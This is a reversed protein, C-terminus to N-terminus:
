LLGLEKKMAELESDVKSNLIAEQYRAEALATDDVDGRANLEAMANAEDLMHNVKEEVRAFANLSAEAKSAASSAAVENLKEQAKAIKLKAEIAAKRDQLEGLDNVLKDHMQRMKASNSVAVDYMQQLSEGVEELSQKKKIFIKADAESGAELAKRALQAYKAVEEKNTDLNRKAKVEDAMVSATEKKIEALDSTLQRMYQEIMKEPDEAKDLAANINSSIIEKFRTLIGM